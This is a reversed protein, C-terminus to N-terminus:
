YFKKRLLRSPLNRGQLIKEFKWVLTVIKKNFKNQLEKFSKDVFKEADKSIYTKKTLKM